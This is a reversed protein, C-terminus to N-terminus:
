EYECKFDIKHGCYIQTMFDITKKKWKGDADYVVNQLFYEVRLIWLYFSMYMILVAVIIIAISFLRMFPIVWM